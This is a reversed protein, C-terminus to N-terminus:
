SGTNALPGNQAEKTGSSKEQATVLRPGPKEQPGALYKELKRAAEHLDAESVINYRSFVDRTRHGSIRMAVTEPVGARVLNRVASRRMDHLYKTNEPLGAILCAKRWPGRCEAIRRGARSFVWPSYPWFEDRQARLALLRQQLEAVMPIIRPEGNKTHEGPIMMLACEADLWEWRAGLIEGRRCGTFFAFLAVAAIEDPLAAMLRDLMARDFFGKRPASEAFPTYPPVRAVKPPDHKLGLSFARRLLAIERNVTPESVKELRWAAYDNLTKTGVAAAKMFRFPSGDSLLHRIVTEGWASQKKKKYDAQVDVLLDAVTTRNILSTPKHGQDLEAIKKRLMRRAEAANDTETSVRVSVGDVSYRMWYTKGRLYINGEGWREKSM